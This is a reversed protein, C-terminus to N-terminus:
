GANAVIENPVVGLDISSTPEWTTLDVVHVSQTAPDTVYATDGEVTLAPRPEQWDTPEEWAEIVPVSRVIEGSDPDIVHLAGDTGLVLAEGAPGRGLSRFTYSAPLDVLRLTATETDILSVRTPRELEADADVKYDGLVVSSHESGAQNGVRGYADPSAVKTIERGDIVLVGDECGVVITSEGAFTEGHVGPCEESRALEAGSATTVIVGTRSESDGITQVLNGDALHVAVGHHAEESTFETVDLDGGIADALDDSAFSTIEGTGDAFLTTVGDHVVVHGPEEAAITLDTLAPDTTYSHGHDDHADTWSGLDLATFGDSTSVFAHRGDGAPNLRVFGELDESALVEGTTADVVLVGGDYSVALRPEPGAAEVVDSTTESNGDSSSGASSDSESDAGCGSLVVGLTLTAVAAPAIRTRVPTKLVTRMNM